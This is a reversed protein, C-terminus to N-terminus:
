GNTPTGPSYSRNKLYNHLNLPWFFTLFPSFVSTLCMKPWLKTGLAHFFTAVPGFSLERHSRDIPLPGLATPNINFTSVFTWLKHFVFLSFFWFLFWFPGVVPFFDLELGWVKIGLPTFHSKARTQALNWNKPHDPPRTILWEKNWIKMDILRDSPWDIPWDTQWSGRDWFTDTTGTQANEKSYIGFRCKM